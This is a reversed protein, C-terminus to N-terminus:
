EIFYQRQSTTPIKCSKNRIIRRRYKAVLRYINDRVIRPIVRLIFLPYFKKNISTLVYIFADSHTYVKKDKSVFLMSDVNPLSESKSHYWASSFDTIRFDNNNNHKIVFRVFASCMNCDGDFVLVEM